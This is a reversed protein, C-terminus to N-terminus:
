SAPPSLHTLLRHRDQDDTATAGTEGRRHQQGAKPDVVEEDACPWSRRDQRLGVDEVLARHLHQLVTAHSVRHSLPASGRVLHRGGGVIGAKGTGLLVEPPPDGPELRPAGGAIVVVPARCAGPRLEVKWLDPELRDQLGAGLPQGRPPDAEVVLQELQHLVVVPHARPNAVVAAALFVGHAAVVEEARVAPPAAGSLDAHPVLSQAYHRLGRRQV